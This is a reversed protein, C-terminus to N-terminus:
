RVAEQPSLHLETLHILPVSHLKESLNKGTKLQRHKRKLWQGTLAELYEKAFEM